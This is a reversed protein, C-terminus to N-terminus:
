ELEKKVFQYEAVDTRFMLDGCRQCEQTSGDVIFERVGCESHCVAYAVYIKEPFAVDGPDPYEGGDSEWRGLSRLHALFSERRCSQPGLNAFRSRIANLLNEIEEAPSEELNM